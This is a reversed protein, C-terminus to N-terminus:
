RNSMTYDYVTKLAAFVQWCVPDKDPFYIEKYTGDKRLHLIMKREVYIGHSQLAQKYAELQPGCVMELVTYTTKYDILTLVGDVYALLDNTGGYMMFKHYLRSESSVIQIDHASWWKLFADFFPKREMTIDEIEYKLWNEISNHVETGKDAAKDLTDKNIGKYKFDSLPKIITSVSPIVLGNLKYTHTEEVFELEPMEPICTVKGM